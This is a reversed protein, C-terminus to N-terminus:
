AARPLRVAAAPAVFATRGFPRLWAAVAATTDPATAPGPRLEVIGTGTFHVRVVRRPAPFPFAVPAETVVCVIARSRVAAAVGALDCGASAFVLGADQLADLSDSHNVRSRTQDAELPTIFGRALAVDIHNRVPAPDGCVVASGGRLVAEGVIRGADEDDGVLGAVAPFPPLPNFPEPLPASETVAPALEAFARREAALGSFEAPPRPKLPRDELRDLFSRLEIKGRRECCAVDVFGLRQAERGSLTRGSNLL